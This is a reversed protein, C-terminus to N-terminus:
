FIRCWGVVPFGDSGRRHVEYFGRVAVLLAAAGAGVEVFFRSM